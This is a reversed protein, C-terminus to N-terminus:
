RRVLARFIDPLGAEVESQPVLFLIEIEDGSKPSYTKETSSLTRAFCTSM